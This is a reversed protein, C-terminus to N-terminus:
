EPPAETPRGKKGGGSEGRATDSTPSPTIPPRSRTPTGPSSPRGGPGAAGPSTAKGADKSTLGETSKPRPRGAAGAVTGGVAREASPTSTGPGPQPRGAVGPAKSKIARGVPIALGDLVSFDGLEPTAINLQDPLGFGSSEPVDLKLKTAASNGPVRVRQRPKRMMVFLGGAVALSVAVIVASFLISSPGSPRQETAAPAAAASVVTPEAPEDPTVDAASPKAEAASNRVLPTPSEGLDKQIDQYLRDFRAFNVDDMERFAQSVSSLEALASKLQATAAAKDNTVRAIRRRSQSLEYRADFFRPRFESKPDKMVIQQLRKSLAGWGWVSTPKGSADRIGQISQSLREPESAEGWDGLILAAEFQADLNMANAALIEEVQKLAEPFEQQRRRCRGLRLLVANRGDESVLREALIESYANGAKEFYGEAGAKDDTVGLGLGYYTEGIWLLSNYDSKNRSEYVKQLFQEFSTRVQALREQEGAAQLRKLEDQLEMGLQTYASLIDDGGVKELQAMTELAQEIRQTGILARLLLRYALGAFSRSQVGSEPRATGEPVAIAAMVSYEGHATLRDIAAQFEGGMNLISALSVEAAVLEETPPVMDGSKQRSLQIGQELLTRAETKWRQLEEPPTRGAESGAASMAAERTWAAWYSQGASIRASAYQPDSEPVESFWRIAELPQQMTRYVSGLRMRAEGARSSQPYLTLIQQCVDRLLRTEFDRNDAPAMNWAAVAAAMAIETSNMATDPAVKQDNTMSNTALVVADLPNGQKLMVFSLLYRSQAVANADSDAERLSLALRLLRGVENLHNDLAAKKAAREVDDAARAQEDTLEQIQAIMGQARAFAAGFDRPERDKEGLVVKLRRSMSLAPERFAGPYKAVQEAHNLAFQLTEAKEKDSLERTEARKEEAIAQEWLIGLGYETTSQQRNEQLWLGAEQIVLDFDNRQPDNLCILRFHRATGKLSQMFPQDSKHDLIENYIGLARGIDDQEQYCKGEMLRAYLGNTNNRWATHISEFLQAAQNLTQKREESGRDFTQGREYTCRVLNLWARLYKGEAERRRQFAEEDKTEDLYKPFAEYQSKYQDHATQFIGKAQDILVRAQNQLSVREDQSSKEATQWVLSEARDFLLEGLLSNANAAQPHQPFVKLFKQLAVESDSLLKERDVPVRSAAGAQQLTIGRQLDLVDRIEQPLDTRLSLGDLYEIATDYYGKQRLGEIFAQIPEQAHLFGQSPFAPVLLLAALWVGVRMQRHSQMRDCM